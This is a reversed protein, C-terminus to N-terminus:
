VLPTRYVARVIVRLDQDNQPGTLPRVRHEILSSLGSYVVLQNDASAYSVTSWDKTDFAFIENPRELSLHSAAITTTAKTKDLGRSSTTRNSANSHFSPATLPPVVMHFEVVLAGDKEVHSAVADQREFALVEFGGLAGHLAVACNMGFAFRPDSSDNGGGNRVADEGDLVGCLSQRFPESVFIERLDQFLSADAGGCKPSKSMEYRCYGFEDPRYEFAEKVFARRADINTTGKGDDLGVVKSATIKEGDNNSAFTWCRTGRRAEFSQAVRRTWMAYNSSTLLGACVHVYTLLFPQVNNNKSGGPDYNPDRAVVTTTTCKMDGRVKGGIRVGRSATVGSKLVSQPKHGPMFLLVQRKHSDTRSIKTSDFSMKNWDVATIRRGREDRATVAARFVSVGSTSEEEDRGAVAFPSADSSHHRMIRLIAAHGNLMASFSVVFGVLLCCLIAIFFYRVGNRKPPSSVAPRM